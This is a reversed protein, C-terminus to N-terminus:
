GENREKGALLDPRPEGHRALDGQAAEDKRNAPNFLFDQARGAGAYFFDDEGLPGFFLDFVDGQGYFPFHLEVEDFAHAFHEVDGDADM